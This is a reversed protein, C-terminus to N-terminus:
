VLLHGDIMYFDDVSSLAGPYSSFVIKKSKVLKNSYNFEYSKM